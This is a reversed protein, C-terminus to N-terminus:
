RGSANLTLANQLSEIQGGMWSQFSLGVPLITETMGVSTVHHEAAITRMATTTPTVTQENYVLLRVHGSELQCQFEVVSNAPPDNGEAVAQMFMPPSVLDLHTFNALYVFLSETAAVVAGAFQHQIQTAQGYVPDISANIRAYNASFYAEQSPDLVSLNHFMAALTANVYLPNYWMHPNGAVIGGDVVVHNIAGVNLITQNASGDSAVLQQLWTDYGVGNEIIYSAHAVAVADSTNAEYEHPDANPDNVVSLVSTDNGGMQSVLSGWFNEGAVVAIVPGAAKPHIADPALPLPANPAAPNSASPRATANAGFSANVVACPDGGTTSTLYAYTGAGALGAVVAATVAFRWTRRM